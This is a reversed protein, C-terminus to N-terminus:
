PHPPNKKLSDAIQFIALVVELTVRAFLVYIVFLIPAIFISILGALLSTAFGTIVTSVAVLGAAVISIIYLWRVVKPTIPATFSFDFFLDLLANPSSAPTPDTSSNM